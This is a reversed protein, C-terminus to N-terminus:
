AVQGEQVRLHQAREGLAAFLSADTGTMWCQAAVGDVLDFLAARRGEDLHAAIEDLLLLPTANTLEGVLRAHALILGVLLAKQEGTSCLEAPMDKPAHKVVLDTRHPGEVTRGAARDRGRSRALLARYEDELDAAMGYIAQRELMGDLELRAAPFPSGAVRAILNALVDVLERRATAIAVALGAMQREQATLWRTDGGEELLRNRGRMVREYETARRGHAPDTALVMRDLFRRRDAAPGAFLGDMSPTLWLVRVHELLAEVSRAPAGNVRVRRGAEGLPSVVLGTGLSVEGEMGALRANLGWPTEAGARTPVDLTVRRLGRGPVLFSVAELLNTKGAGNEGTLVVHRPALDLRLSKYNRFNELTLREVAVATLHAREKPPGARAPTM